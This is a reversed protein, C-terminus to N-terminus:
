ISQETIAAVPHMLPNECKDGTVREVLCAGGREFKQQRALPTVQTTADESQEKLFAIFGGEETGFPQKSSSMRELAQGTQLHEISKGCISTGDLLTTILCASRANQRARPGKVQIRGSGVAAQSFEVSQHLFMTGRGDRCVAPTAAFFYHKAIKGPPKGERFICCRNLLINASLQWQGPHPQIPFAFAGGLEM